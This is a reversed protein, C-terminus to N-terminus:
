FLKIFSSLYVISYKFYYFCLAYSLTSFNDLNYIWNSKIYSNKLLKFISYIFCNYFVLPKNAGLSHTLSEFSIILLFM